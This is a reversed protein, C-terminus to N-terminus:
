LRLFGQISYRYEHSPGRDVTRADLILSFEGYLRAYLQPGYQTARDAFPSTRVLREFIVGAEIWEVPSVYPKVYLIHQGFSAGGFGQQTRRTFHYEGILGFLENYGLRTFASASLRKIADSSGLLATAGISRDSTLSYESRAGAGWEQNRTTEEFSPGFAFPTLIFHEKIPLYARVQTNYDTVSRRNETRLFMTHDDLNLGVPLFDRGVLVEYESSNRYAVLMRRLIFDEGLAGSGGRRAEKLRPPTLGVTTEFRITDTLQTANQYDLMMLFTDSQNRTKMSLVRAQLGHQVNGNLTLTRYIPNTPTQYERSFLSSGAAVGKGYETLM